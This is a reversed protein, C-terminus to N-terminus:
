ALMLDRCHLSLVKMMIFCKNEFKKGTKAIGLWERCGDAMNAPFSFGSHTGTARCILTIACQLEDVCTDIIEFNIDHSAAHLDEMFKVTGDYTPIAGPYQVPMSIDRSMLKSLTEEDSPNKNIWAVYRGAFDLLQQRNM